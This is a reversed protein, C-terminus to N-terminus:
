QCSRMRNAEFQYSAPSDIQQNASVVGEYINKLWTDIVVEVRRRTENMAENPNGFYTPNALQKRLVPELLRASIRFHNRWVGVHENEHAEVIKRRCGDQLEKALYVVFESFGLTLVLSPVICIRGNADTLLNPTLDLKAAPVAHTLGLISHYQSSKSGSLRKLEALSRNNDKTIPKDEFLVSIKADASLRACREEFDARDAAMAGLALQVLQLALITGKLYKPVKM